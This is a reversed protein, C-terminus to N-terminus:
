LARFAPYPVQGPFHVRDADIRGAVEDLFIRKWSQGQPPQRGYSTGEGGVVVVQAEPRRALIAPLARMFIHYGRYPELNRNVFTLVEDGASLVRGSALTVKASPDPAMTETAIGDHIVRIKERLGAPFTGRQWETPSLGADAHLLSQAIHATRA